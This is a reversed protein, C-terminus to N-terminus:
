VGGFVEAIDRLRWVDERMLRLASAGTLGLQGCPLM